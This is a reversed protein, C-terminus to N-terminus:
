VFGGLSEGFRGFSIGGAVVKGSGMVAVGVMVVWGLWDVAEGGEGAGGFDVGVEVGVVVWACCGIAVL